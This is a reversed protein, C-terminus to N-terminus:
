SDALCCEFVHKLFVQVSTLGKLVSNRICVSVSSCQTQDGPEPQSDSRQIQFSDTSTAHIFTRLLTKRHLDEPQVRDAPGGPSPAGESVDAASFFSPSVIECRLVTLLRMVGTGDNITRRFPEASNSSWQSHGEGWFLEKELWIEQETRIQLHQQVENEECLGRSRKKPSRIQIILWYCRRLLWCSLSMGKYGHELQSHHM